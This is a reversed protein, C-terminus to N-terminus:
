RPRSEYSVRVGNVESRQLRPEADGIGSIALQKGTIWFLTLDPKGAVILTNGPQDDLPQGMPMISVHTTTEAGCSRVFRLVRVSRAPSALAFVDENVCAADSECATVQLAHCARATGAALEKSYVFLSLGIAASALAAVVAAKGELYGAKWGPVLYAAQGTLFAVAGMALLFIGLVRWGWIAGAAFGIATALLGVATLAIERKFQGL